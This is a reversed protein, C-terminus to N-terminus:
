RSYNVVLESGQSYNVVSLLLVAALALHVTAAHRLADETRAAQADGQNEVQLGDKTKGLERPPPRSDHRDQHPSM